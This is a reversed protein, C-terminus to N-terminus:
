SMLTLMQISMQLQVLVMIELLAIYMRKFLVMSGNQFLVM